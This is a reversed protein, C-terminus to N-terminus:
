VIEPSIGDSGPAKSCSLTNIAKRLKDITFPADLEELTPPPTTNQIAKNSVNERSFLDQYYEAWREM